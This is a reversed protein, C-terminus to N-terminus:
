KRKKCQFFTIIKKKWEFYLPIGFINVMFFYFLAIPELYWAKKQKIYYRMRKYFEWNAVLFGVKANFLNDHLDCAPKFIFNPVGWQLGEPGCGNPDPLSKGMWKIKM